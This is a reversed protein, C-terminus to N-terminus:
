RGWRAGLGFFVNKLEPAGVPTTFTWYGASLEMIVHPVTIVELTAGGGVGLGDGVVRNWSPVYRTGGTPTSVYYGGGDFRGEVQGLGAEVFPRMTFRDSGVNLAVAIGAMGGTIGLDRPGLRVLAVHWSFGSPGRRSFTVRGSPVARDPDQDFPSPSPALLSFGITTRYGGRPVRPEVLMVPLVLRKLQAVILDIPVANARVTLDETVMGVVEWWQNFLAGGSSGVRVFSSQFLIGRGDVAMVHDPEAPAEWCEGGPCGLPWVPVGNSLRAVNGLRDLPVTGSWRSGLASRPISIVAVDLLSDPAIAVLTAPIERSDPGALVISAAVTDKPDTLPVGPPRFSITHAATVIYVRVGDGGFVVGAGIGARERTDRRYTAIKVVLNRAAAPVAQARQAAVPGVMVLLLPVARLGIM